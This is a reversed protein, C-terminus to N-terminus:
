KEKISFEIGKQKTIKEVMLIFEKLINDALKLSDAETKISYKGAAIYKVEIGKNEGPSLIEKILEMGNPAISTLNIEKKVIAKKQKQSNLIDM